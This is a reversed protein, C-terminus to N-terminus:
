LQSHIAGSLTEGSLYMYEVDTLLELETPITGDLNNEGLDLVSLRSAKVCFNDDDRDHSNNYQYWSCKNDNLLWGRNNNWYTANTSFYLVALAYRQYLRYLDYENYQPDARLWTLAKAQPSSVNTSALELSYTPLGDLFENVVSSTPASSLSLAPPSNKNATLGFTVGLAVSVVVLASVALLVRPRWQNREEDTGDIVVNLAEPEELEQIDSEGVDKHATAHDNGEPMATRNEQGLITAQNYCIVVM